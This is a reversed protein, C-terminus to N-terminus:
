LKRWGVIRTECLMGENYREFTPDNDLHMVDEPAVERHVENPYMEKVKRKGDHFDHCFLLDGSKCAWKYAMLEAVKNGGDCYILKKPLHDVESLLRTNFCDGIFLKNDAKELWLRASPQILDGHLEIGYYKMWPYEPILLYALGGEHLGIEVFWDPHEQKIICDLQELEYWTHGLRIEEDKPLHIINTGAVRDLRGM